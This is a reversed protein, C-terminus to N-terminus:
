NHAVTKKGVIVPEQSGKDDRVMESWGKSGMVRGRGSVQLIVIMSIM